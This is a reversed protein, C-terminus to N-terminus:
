DQLTQVQSVVVSTDLWDNFNTVDGWGDFVEGSFGDGFYSVYSETDGQNGTYWSYDLGVNYTRWGDAYSTFCYTGNNNDVQTGCSDTAAAPGAAVVGLGVVAMAVAAVAGGYRAKIKM